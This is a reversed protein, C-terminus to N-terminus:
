IGMAGMGGVPPEVEAKVKAVITDHIDNGFKKWDFSHEFYNAVIAAKVSLLMTEDLKKMASIKFSVIAMDEEFLMKALAGARVDVNNSTGISTSLKKLKDLSLATLMQKVVSEPSNQTAMWVRQIHDVVAVGEQSRYAPTELITLNAM